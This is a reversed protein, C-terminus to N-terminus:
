SSQTHNPGVVRRTRSLHKVSIVLTPEHIQVCVTQLGLVSVEFGSADGGEEEEEEEEGKEQKKQIDKCLATFQDIHVQKVKAAVEKVVTKMEEERVEEKGGGDGGVERRERPEPSRCTCHLYVHVHLPRGQTSGNAKDQRNVDVDVHVSYVHMYM